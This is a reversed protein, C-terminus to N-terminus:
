WANQHARLFLISQLLAGWFIQRSDTSWCDASLRGVSSWCDASLRAVTPRCVVLLRCVTKGFQVTSRRDTLQRHVTPWKATIMQCDTPLQWHVKEYCQFQVMPCSKHANRYICVAIKCVPLSLVFYVNNHFSKLVIEKRFKLDELLRPITKLANWLLTERTQWCTERTQLTVNHM